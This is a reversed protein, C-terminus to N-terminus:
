RPIICCLAYRTPASYMMWTPSQVLRSIYKCFQTNLIITRRNKMIINRMSYSLSWMTVIRSNTIILISKLVFIKFMKEFHMSPTSFKYFSNYSINFFNYEKWLFEIPPFCNVCVIKKINTPDILDSDHGFGWLAPSFCIYLKFFDM